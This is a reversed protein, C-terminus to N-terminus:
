AELISEAGCTPCIIRLPRQADQVTLYMNCNYCQVTVPPPAQPEPPAAQQQAPGAQIANARQQLEVVQQEFEQYELLLAEKEAPDESLAIKDRVAMAQQQIDDYQQAIQALRAQVDEEPLAPQQVAAPEPSTEETAEPAFDAAPEGIEAEEGPGDAVEVAAEPKVAEDETDGTEEGTGAGGGMGAVEEASRLIDDISGDGEAEEGTPEEAATEGGTVEEEAGEEEGEAAEGAEIMDGEGPTKAEAEKEEGQPLDETGEEKVDEEGEEGTSEPVSAPPLAKVEDDGGKPLAKAKRKRVRKRVTKVPKKVVRTEGTAAEPIEDPGTILSEETVVPAMGPPGGPATGPAFADPPRDTLIHRPVALEEDDPLDDKRKKRFVLFLLIAIVLIALVAMGLVMVITGGVDSTTDDKVVKFSVNWTYIDYEDGDESLLKVTINGERPKEQSIAYWRKDKSSRDQIGMWYWKISYDDGLPDYVEVEIRLTESVNIELDGAIEDPIVLSPFINKEPIVPGFCTVSRDVNGLTDFVLVAVWYKRGPKLGKKQYEDVEFYTDDRMVIRKGQEGDQEPYAVFANNNHIDLIESVNREFVYLMYYNFDAELSANWEVIIGDGADGPRDYARLERVESPAINEAPVVAESPIVGTNQNGSLDIASVAAYYARGNTMPVRNTTTVEVVYSDNIVHEADIVTEPVMNEVDRFEKSKAYVEYRVVDNEESKEFEITISGGADDPTDYAELIYVAEPAINELCTVPGFPEVSKEENGRVDVATIAIWYEETLDVLPDNGMSVILATQTTINHETLTPTMDEVSNFSRNAVYINYRDFDAELSSMWRISISGGDDKPTDDASLITVPMPPINEHSSVPTKASVDRLYNGSTDVATVAIYYEMEDELAKSNMKTLITFNDTLKDVAVPVTSVNTIKEDDIYVKYHAFDPSSCPEWFVQISSGADNPTDYATINRVPGPPLNDLPMVPGITNGGTISGNENGPISDDVSTVTFFYGDDNTLNHFAMSTASVNSSYPTLGAVTTIQEEEKYVNFYAFDPSENPDWSIEVSGGEDDPIDRGSLGKVGLPLNDICKGSGNVVLPNVNGWIDTVSVAFFYDTDDQLPNGDIENILHSINGGDTINSIIATMGSVNTIPSTDAYLDYREFDWKTCKDWSVYVHGGGDFPRDKVTVGEIQPLPTTDEVYTELGFVIVDDIYYGHSVGAENSTFRFRFRITRWQSSWFGTIPVGLGKPEGPDEQGNSNLDSYWKMFTWSNYVGMEGPNSFINRTNIFNDSSIDDIFFKDGEDNRDGVMKFAYSIPYNFVNWRDSYMNSLDFEPSILEVDMNNVYQGNDRGVYWSSDRTHDGNQNIADDVLHWRDPGGFSTKATWVGEGSECDDAWKNAWGYLSFRDNSRDSDGTVNVSATINYLFSFLFRHSFQVNVAQNGAIRPITRTINYLEQIQFEQTTNATWIECYVEVDDVAQADLNAVSVTFTTTEGVIGISYNGTRGEEQVSWGPIGGEYTIHAVQVDMTRTGPRERHATDDWDIGLKAEKRGHSGPIQSALCISLIMLISIIISKEASRM